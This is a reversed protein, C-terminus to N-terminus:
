MRSHQEFYGHRCGTTYRPMTCGMSERCVRGMHNSPIWKILFRSAIHKRACRVSTLIVDLSLVARELDLHKEVAYMYSEFTFIHEAYLLTVMRERDGKAYLNRRLVDYVELEEDCPTARCFM